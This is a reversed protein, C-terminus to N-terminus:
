SALYMFLRTFILNKPLIGKKIRLKEIPRQNTLVVISIEDIANISAVYQTQFDKIREQDHNIQGDNRDIYPSTKLIARPKPM